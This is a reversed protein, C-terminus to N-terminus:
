RADMLGVKGIGAAAAADHARIVDGYPVDAESRIVLVLDDQTIGQALGKLRDQLEQITGPPFGPGSAVTLGEPGVTLMVEFRAPAMKFPDAKERGVEADTGQRPLATRLFWERGLFSMSTMFFILIVMVVDVMPTMSPGFHMEWHTLASRNRFARARM